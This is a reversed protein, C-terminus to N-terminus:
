GRLPKGRRRADPAGDPEYVGPRRDWLTVVDGPKVTNLDHLHPNLERVIALQDVSYSGQYMVVLDSVTQGPQLVVSTVPSM